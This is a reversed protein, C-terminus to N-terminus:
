CHTYIDFILFVFCEAQRAPSLGAAQSPFSVPLIPTCPALFRGYVRNGYTSDPTSEAPAGPSLLVHLDTSGGPHLQDCGSGPQTEPHTRDPGDRFPRRDHRSQADPSLLRPLPRRGLAPQIRPSPLSPPARHAPRRPPRAECPNMQVVPLGTTGRPWVARRSSSGYFEAARGDADCIQCRAKILIVLRGSVKVTETWPICQSTSSDM